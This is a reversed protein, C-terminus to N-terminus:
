APQPSIALLTHSYNCLYKAKQWNPTQMWQAKRTLELSHLARCARGKVRSQKLNFGFGAGVTLKFIAAMCNSVLWDLNNLFLWGVFYVLDTHLMYLVSWIVDEQMPKSDWQQQSQYDVLAEPTRPAPCGPSRIVERPFVCLMTFFVIIYSM